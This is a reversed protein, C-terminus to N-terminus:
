QLNLAVLEEVVLSLLVWKVIGLSRLLRRVWHSGHTSHWSHSSHSSSHRAHASHSSHASSTTSHRLNRWIDLIHHSSHVWLCHVVEHLLKTAHAHTTLLLLLRWSLSSTRELWFWAM